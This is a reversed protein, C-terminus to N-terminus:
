TRRPPLEWLELFVAVKRQTESGFEAFEEDTVLGLARMRALCLVATSRRLDNFADGLEEDREQILQYVDLYQAHSDKASASARRVVESLVRKCFRDLAIPRLRRFLKWDSELIDREVV